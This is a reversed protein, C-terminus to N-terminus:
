AFLAQRQYLAAFWYSSVAHKVANLKKIPFRQEWLADGPNRGLLGNEGAIAPFSLNQWDDFEIEEIGPEYENNKSHLLKGCLDDEHWRTMIIIIIGDPELRTYATSIFWEWINERITESNAEKDNKVPDDIM